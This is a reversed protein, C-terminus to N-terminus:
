AAKRGEIAAIAPPLALVVSGGSPEPWRRRQLLRGALWTYLVGIAAEIPVVIWEPTTAAPGFLSRM